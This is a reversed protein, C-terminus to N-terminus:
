CAFNFTDPTGIDDCAYSFGPIHSDDVSSRGFMLDVFDDTPKTFNIKNVVSEKIEPVFEMQYRKNKIKEWNIDSFYPHNFIEEEGNPGCGLRKSPDKKLLSQIFSKADNPLPKWFRLPSRAIREYLKTLNPSEFPLVGEILQYALVGFSWWDIAFNYSIGKVMEPALYEHTGCISTAHDECLLYRALGFDTLKLHGSKDLLINSPKLDRFIIGLKHLHSLAVAIEALFIKIQKASFVKGNELHFSLDGGPVFELAFYLFKSTQFASYLRTIFSTNTKMLINREAFAHKVCSANSISSKPIAKLAVLKQTPRYRALIVEGSFGKGIPMLLEFDKLSTHSYSPEDVRLAALWKEVTSQNEASFSYVKSGDRIVFSYTSGDSTDFVDDISHFDITIEPIITSDSEFITLTSSNFRCFMLCDKNNTGKTKVNMWSELKVEPM